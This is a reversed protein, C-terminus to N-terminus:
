INEQLIVSSNTTEQIEKQTGNRNIKVLNEEVSENILFLFIVVNTQDYSAM